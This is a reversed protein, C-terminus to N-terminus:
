RWRRCRSRRKPVNDLPHDFTLVEEHGLHPVHMGQDLGVNLVHATVLIQALCGLAVVIEETTEIQAVPGVVFRKQTLGPKTLSEHALEGTKVRHPKQRQAKGLHHHQIRVQL